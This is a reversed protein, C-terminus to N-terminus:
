VAARFRRLRLSNAVVFVSSFAMAAGAIMPNLLGAAALPLAAVNYAFAWFLNGRITGLTRRSLRIADAASRLDGRVLTIDSAEIAADTGTGIALGLDATALAAADNVGDGVMAVARGESQLRRVVEVKEAPMVEAIVTEPGPDIGVEAAVSAAVAANDGTLLIPTLGLDRFRRIAEASTDKIQDAVVLVGRARGGWGAAVATRGAQAAETFAAELEHPLPMGREALLAPRGVVVVEDDDGVRGSVGLGEHNRFGEVAPLAGVEERAGAAIARAIPHESADEVAGARRLVEARVEGDAVATSVLAHQGTTVTGTKDLVITDVRRTSELVEPGKILIGLQAGRGTGVMLAMPTALGLACPCAIILVAVAATFAMSAGGGTLMWYAFTGAALVLVIPVFVGSIRDALRQAAAKGSQADEVMRAMQALQTDAGVRTARVILRGSANVTGGVVADGPGVEAPVSEGTVMSTDVASAGDVIEGDTAIKEGPRVVFEEGVQLADVPIRTEVGGRLVAVDKAGLELLSRLAAGASRKSRAEFYRGLLIFTTVGAAAELYIDGAGDSPSLSFEFGHTMGPMGAHGFFLAYLSWLFAASTGLSVLTDMTFAGHRLNIAAARHFPWAGWVVVPAALTLSLWQWHTFQLAPVMAMAIVPISLIASIIVRRRLDDVRDPGAADDTQNHASGVTRGADAAASDTATPAPTRPETNRPRPLRAHYGAQEVTDLLLQPEIGDAIEVRAKETAYNVEATVDDLKNLKREIRNACSACTM